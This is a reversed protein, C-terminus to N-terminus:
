SRLAAMMMSTWFFSPVSNPHGNGVSSSISLSKHIGDILERGGDADRRRTLREAHSASGEIALRRKTRRQGHSLDSSCVDSSWDRLVM